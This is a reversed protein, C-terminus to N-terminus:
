KSDYSMLSINFRICIIVRIKVSYYSRSLEIQSIGFGFAFFVVTVESILSLGFSFTFIEFMEILFFFFGRYIMVFLAM